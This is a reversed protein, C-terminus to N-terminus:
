HVRVGDCNERVFNFHKDKFSEFRQRLIQSKRQENPNAQDVEAQCLLAKIVSWGLDTSDADGKCLAVHALGRLMSPQKWDSAAAADIAQEVSAPGVKSNECINANAQDPDIDPLTESALNMLMVAKVSPVPFHRAITELNSDLAMSALRQISGSGRDYIALPVAGAAVRSAAVDPRLEPCAPQDRYRAQHLASETLSLGILPFPGQDALAAQFHRRSQCLLDKESALEQPSAKNLGKEEISCLQMSIAKIQALRARKFDLDTNEEGQLSEYHTLAQTLLLDAEAGRWKVGLRRCREGVLDKFQIEGIRDKIRMVDLLGQYANLAAYYHLNANALAVAYTDRALIRDLTNKGTADVAAAAYVVAEFRYDPFVTRTESSAYLWALRNLARGYIMGLAKAGNISSALEKAANGLMQKAADRETNGKLLAARQTAFTGAIQHLRPGFHTRAVVDVNSFYDRASGLHREGIDLADAKVRKWDPVRRFPNVTSVGRQVFVPIVSVSQLSDAFRDCFSQDRSDEACSAGALLFYLARNKALLGLLFSRYELDDRYFESTLAREAGDLHDKMHTLRTPPVQANRTPMSALIEALYVHPEAFDDMPRDVIAHLRQHAEGGEDLAGEPASHIELLWRAFLDMRDRLIRLSSPDGDYSSDKDATTPERFLRKALHLERTILGQGILYLEYKNEPNSADFLSRTDPSAVALELRAIAESLRSFTKPLQNSGKLAEQMKERWKSAEIDVVSKRMQYVDFGFIALGLSAFIGLVALIFKWHGIFRELFDRARIDFMEQSLVELPENSADPHPPDGRQFPRSKAERLLRGYAYVGAGFFLLAAVVWGLGSRDFVDKNLLSGAILSGAAMLILTALFKSSADPQVQWKQRCIRSAALVISWVTTLGTRM